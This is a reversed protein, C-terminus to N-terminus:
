AGIKLFDIAKQFIDLGGCAGGKSIVRLGPKLGGTFCGIPVAPALEAKLEIGQAQIQRSVAKAIDGGTLVLGGVAVEALVGATIRGLTDALISSATPGTLLPTSNPVYLITNKGDKLAEVVKFIIIEDSEQELLFPVLKAFNISNEIQKATIPSRSGAIVLVPLSILNHNQGNFEQPLEKGSQLQSMAKALGATGCGLVGSNKLLYGAIIKLHAETTSDCAIIQNGERRLQEIELEVAAEGKNFISLSIFGVKRRCSAKLLSPLHSERVPCVPDVSAESEAVPIQNALHFGGATVRANAPYAPAVLATEIGLTDMLSELEAGLQGRLMSDVKKYFNTVGLKKLLRAANATAVTAESCSLGRSDTNIALVRVNKPPKENGFIVMSPIGRCAFQVASDGAGTLDDAVIGLISDM